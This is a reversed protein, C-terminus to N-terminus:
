NLNESEPTYKLLLIRVSYIIVYTNKRLTFLRIKKNTPCEKITCLEDFVQICIKLVFVESLYINHM